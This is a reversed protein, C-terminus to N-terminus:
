VRLSVHRDWVVICRLCRSSRPPRLSSKPRRRSRRGRRRRRWDVCLPCLPPTLCFTTQDISSHNGRRRKRSRNSRKTSVLVVHNFVRTLLTLLTFICIQLVFGETDIGTINGVLANQSTATLFCVVFAFLCVFVATGLCCDHSRRGQGHDTQTNADCVCSRCITLLV